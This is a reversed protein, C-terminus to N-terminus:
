KTEKWNKGLAGDVKLTIPANKLITEMIAPIKIQLEDKEEPVVNFILEDHVQLLMTSKYNGASLMTDIEIMALKIIDASTGQIPMNM